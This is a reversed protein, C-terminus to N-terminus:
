RGPFIQPVRNRSFALDVEPASAAVKRSKACHRLWSSWQAGGGGGNVTM